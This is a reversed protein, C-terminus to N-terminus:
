RYGPFGPDALRRDAFLDGGEFCVEARLQHAAGRPAHGEGVGALNEVFGSQPQDVFEVRRLGQNTVALGRRGAQDPHGNRRHEPPEVDHRAKGLKESAIRVDGNLEGAGPAVDVQDLVADVQRNAVTLEGVRAHDHPV